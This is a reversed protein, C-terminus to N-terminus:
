AKEEDKLEEIERQLNEIESQYKDAELVQLAVTILYAMAKAKKIKKDLLSSDIEEVKIKKLSNLESQINRLLMKESLLKM